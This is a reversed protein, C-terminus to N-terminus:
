VEDDPQKRPLSPYLPIDHSPASSLPPAPDGFLKQQLNEVIEGFLAIDRKRIFELYEM